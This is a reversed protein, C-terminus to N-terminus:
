WGSGGGGGGGGGSSGGGSSGSSSSGSDSSSSSSSPLTAASSIASSLSGGTASAFARPQTWPDNPGSYWALTTESPSNAAAALVGTFRKAWRNEVDLAIAYPLYREFLAATKEPPNLLDLRDEEAVSLYHRFGAIRDRMPWGAATPGRLRSYAIAVCPLAILVILVPVPNGGALGIGVLGVGLFVLTMWVAASAMWSLLRRGGHSKPMAARWRALLHQVLWCAPIGVFTLLLGSNTASELALVACVLLLLGFFMRCGIFARKAADTFFHEEGYATELATRLAAQADLLPQYNARTLALTKRQKFLERVMAQEAAPLDPSTKTKELSRAPKGWRAPTEVIRLAGRVAVDVIAASYARGDFGMRWILRLAAASLDDPPVFLPVIPRRDPNRRARWVARILYFVIGLLGAVALLLAGNERLAWGLRTAAGPEAVVGKRWATAITLGQGTRLRQTTRFVIRGPQEAIVAADHETAGQVGTYVARKGFPVAGPLTIRAEAREIPFTWGNGTVNWYLEDFDRYFSIQRTTRYHILFVHRGPPLITDANGIRIREGNQMGILRYAEPQGDRAVAVVDFGVKVRRGVGSRYETPFDRQIGHQIELGESVLGITEVVDLVGDAGVHIDSVFDTIREEALVPAATLLALAAVAMRLIRM